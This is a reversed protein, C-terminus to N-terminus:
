KGGCIKKGGEEIPLAIGKIANRAKSSAEEILAFGKIVAVSTIRVRKKDTETILIGLSKELVYTAESAGIVLEINYETGKISNAILDGSYHIAFAALGSIIASLLFPGVSILILKKQWPMNRIFGVM